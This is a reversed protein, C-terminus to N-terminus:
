PVAATLSSDLLHVTLTGRQLVTKEKLIECLFMSTGSMAASLEATVTLRDSADFHPAFVDLNRVGLVVGKQPPTGDLRARCGAFAAAAQSMLELGLASSAEGNQDIVIKHNDLTTECIISESGVEVISDLLVSEGSHPLLERISPITSM